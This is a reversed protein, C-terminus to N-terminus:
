FLLYIIFLLSVKGALLFEWALVRAVEVWGGSGGGFGLVMTSQGLISYLNLITQIQASAPKTATTSIRVSLTMSPGDYDIWAYWQAADAFRTQVGGTITYVTDTVINTMNGNTGIGIHDTAPDHYAANNFTDFEVFIDRPYLAGLTDSSGSAATVSTTM